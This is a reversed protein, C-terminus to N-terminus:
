ISKFFEHFVESQKRKKDTFDERRSIHIYIAIIKRFQRCGSAKLPFINGKSQSIMTIIKLVCDIEVM